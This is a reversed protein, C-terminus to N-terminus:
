GYNEFIQEIIDSDINVSEDSTVLMYGEKFADFLVPDSRDTPFYSVADLSWYMNHISEPTYDSIVNSLDFDAIYFKLKKSKAEKGLYVEVDLADNKAVHHILAMLIGLEKAIRGLEQPASILSQIQKLGIFEGRGKNILSVDKNGLLPQITPAIHDRGEPRFIRPMIMYCLDDTEIFESPNLVRVHTLKKYVPNDELKSLIDKIKKFENSWQRCSTGSIRKNSVKVCFAPDDKKIYVTGFGGRGIEQGLFDNNM